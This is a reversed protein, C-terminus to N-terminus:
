SRRPGWGPRRAPGSPARPRPLAPGGAVAPAEAELVLPAGAGRPRVPRGGRHDPRDRGARHAPGGRPRQDGRRDSPGALPADLRTARPDLARPPRHPSRAQNMAENERFHRGGPPLLPRHTMRSPILSFCTSWRPSWGPRREGRVAPSSGPRSRRGPRPGHPINRHSPTTDIKRYMVARPDDFFLAAIARSPSRRPPRGGGSPCPKLSASARRQLCRHPAGPDRPHLDPHDDPEPAGAPGPREPPRGGRGPPPHRLQTPLTHPSSSPDFGLAVLHERLLRGVSRSTLRTGRQNLFIPRNERSRRRGGPRGGSPRALEM